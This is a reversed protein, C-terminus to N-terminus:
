RKNSPKLQERLKYGTNHPADVPTQIPVPLTPQWKERLVRLVFMVNGVWYRKWLRQPEQLFRYFWECGLERVWQPARPLRGAYFDFLGGVGM